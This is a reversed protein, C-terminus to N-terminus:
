WAQAQNGLRPKIVLGPSPEALKRKFVCFALRKALSIRCGVPNAFLDMSSRLSIAVTSARAHNLLHLVSPNLAMRSAASAAAFPPHLAQGATNIGKIAAYFMLSNSWFNLKSAIECNNRGLM